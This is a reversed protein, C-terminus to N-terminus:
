GAKKLDEFYILGKETVVHFGIDNIIDKIVAARDSKSSDQAHAPTALAVGGVVLVASAAFTTVSRRARTM